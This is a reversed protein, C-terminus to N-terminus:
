LAFHLSTTQRQEIYYRWSFNHLLIQSIQRCIKFHMFYAIAKEQPSPFGCIVFVGATYGHCNSALKRPNTGSCPLGVDSPLIKRVAVQGNM